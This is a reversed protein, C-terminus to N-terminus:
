LFEESEYWQERYERPTIGEYKRFVVDFYSATYGVDQAIQIMTDGTTRLREKARELRVRTLYENPSLGLRKKFLKQLYYKNISFAQALSDLSINEQYNVDLYSRISVTYDNSDTIRRKQKQCELICSVMLQILLGSAQIDDPIRNVNNEYLRLLEEILEVYPLQEETQLVPSDANAELFANYYARATPGYFHVWLVHWKGEAQSTHYNQLNRCDIWFLTGPRLHHMEGKYDLVGQGSVTYKLLYSPLNERRTFYKPGCHFDGLEQVYPLEARIAPAATVTLWTSKAYFDLNYNLKVAEM